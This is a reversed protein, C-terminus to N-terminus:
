RIPANGLSETAFQPVARVAESIVDFVETIEDISM